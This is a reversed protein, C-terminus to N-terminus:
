YVMQLGQFNSRHLECYLASCVFIELEQYDFLFKLLAFSMWVM